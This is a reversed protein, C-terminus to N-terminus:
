ENHEDVWTELEHRDFVEDPSCNDRVYEIIDDIDFIEISFDSTIEDATFIDGPYFQERIALIIAKEGLIEIMFDLLKQAIKERSMKYEKMSEIAYM